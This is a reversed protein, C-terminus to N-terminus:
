CKCWLREHFDSWLLLNRVIVHFVGEAAAYVSVAFLYVVGNGFQFAAYISLYAVVM